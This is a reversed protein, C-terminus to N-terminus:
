LYEVENRKTKKGEEAERLRDSIITKNIVCGIEVVWAIVIMRNRDDPLSFFMFAFPNKWEKKKM